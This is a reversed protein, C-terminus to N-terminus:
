FGDTLRSVSQIAIWAAHNQLRMGPWKSYVPNGM